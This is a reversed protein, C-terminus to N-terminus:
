GIGAVGDASTGTRRFGGRRSLHEASCRCTWPPTAPVTAPDYPGQGSVFILGAAKVAQSYMPFAPADGTRVIEKPM